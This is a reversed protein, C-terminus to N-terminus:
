RAVLARAVSEDASAADLLAHVAIPTSLCRDEIVSGAELQRWAGTVPSWEEVTGEKVFVAFIRRVGREALLRARAELESRRQQYAVEFAMEELHREGTRVDIGARRVSTDTAYDDEPSWRTLLDTAG